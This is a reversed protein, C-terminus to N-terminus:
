LYPKSGRPEARPEHLGELEQRAAPVVSHIVPSRDGLPASSVSLIRVHPIGSMITHQPIKTIQNFNLSHAKWHRRTAAQIPM